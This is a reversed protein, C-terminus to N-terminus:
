QLNVCGKENFRDIACVKTSILDIESLVIEFM